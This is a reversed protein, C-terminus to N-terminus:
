YNNRSIINTKSINFTDVLDQFERHLKKSTKYIEYNKLLETKTISNLILVQKNCKNM